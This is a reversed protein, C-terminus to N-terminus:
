ILSFITKQERSPLPIPAVGGGRPSSPWAGHDTFGAVPHYSAPTWSQSMRGAAQRSPGLTVRWPRLQASMASSSSARPQPLALQSPLSTRVRRRRQKRQCVEEDTGLDPPRAPLRSSPPSTTAEGSATSTCIILYEVSLRNPRVTVPVDRRRCRCQRRRRRWRSVNFSTKEPSGTAYSKM